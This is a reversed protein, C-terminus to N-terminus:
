NLETRLGGTVKVQRRLNESVVVMPPRGFDL